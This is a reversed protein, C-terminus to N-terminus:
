QSSPLRRLLGDKKAAISQKAESAIVTEIEEAEHSNSLVGDNRPSAFCRVEIHLQV